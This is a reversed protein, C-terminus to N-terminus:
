DNEQEEWTSGVDYRFWAYTDFFIKFPLKYQYMLSALFIQRGRYQNEYAGFFSYQGGLSFQESLPLTKDGFGAYIRPSFVSHSGLSFYYKLDASALIYGNSDGGYDQATEYFGNFLLGDEPYPYKNQNDVVAGIKM